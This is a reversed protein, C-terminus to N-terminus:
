GIISHIDMWVGLAEFDAEQMHKAAGAELAHAAKEEVAQWAAVILMLCDIWRPASTTVRMWFCYSHSQTSMHPSTRFKLDLGPMM